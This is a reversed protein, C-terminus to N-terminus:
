KLEPNVELISQITAGQLKISTDANAKTQLFEWPIGIAAIDRDDKATMASTIFISKVAVTPSSRDEKSTYVRQQRGDACGQGKIEENMKMELFM